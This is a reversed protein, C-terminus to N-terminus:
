GLAWMFLVGLIGILFLTCGLNQFWSGSREVSQRADEGKANAEAMQQDTLGLQKQLEDKFRGM